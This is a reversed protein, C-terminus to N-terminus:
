IFFILYKAYPIVGRAIDFVGGSLGSITYIAGTLVGDVTGVLPPESFTRQILQLPLQFVATTIRYIGREVYSVNEVDGAYLSSPPGLFIFAIVFLVLLGASKRKM